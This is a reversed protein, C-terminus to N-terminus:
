WWTYAYPYYYGRYSYLSPYYYSSGYPYYYPYYYSGYLYYPYYYGGYPYYYSSYYYPYYGLGGLGFSGYGRWGYGRYGGYWGRGGWGGGFGRIGGRGRQQISRSEGGAVNQDPLGIIQSTDIQILRQSAESAPIREPLAAKLADPSLTNEAALVSRPPQAPVSPGQTITPSNSSCGFLGIALCAVGVRALLINAM